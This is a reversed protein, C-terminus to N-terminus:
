VQQGSTGGGDSQIYEIMTRAQSEVLSGFQIFEAHVGSITSFREVYESSFEAPEFQLVVGGAADGEGADVGVIFGHTNGGCNASEFGGNTRSLAGVIKSLLKRM